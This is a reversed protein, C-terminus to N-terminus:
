RGLWLGYGKNEYVCGFVFGFALSSNKMSCILAHFFSSFFIPRLNYTLFLWAKKGMGSGRGSRSGRIRSLM